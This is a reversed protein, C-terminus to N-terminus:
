ELRRRKAFRSLEPTIPLTSPDRLNSLLLCLGPNVLVFVDAAVSVWTPARALM